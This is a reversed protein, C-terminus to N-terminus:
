RSLVHSHAHAPCVGNNNRRASPEHTLRRGFPGATPMSGSVSSGTEEICGSLLAAAALSVTAIAMRNM